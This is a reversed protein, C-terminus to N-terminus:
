VYQAYTYLTFVISHRPMYMTYYSLQDMRVYQRVYVCVCVRLVVLEWVCGKRSVRVLQCLDSRIGYITALNVADSSFSNDVTYTYKCVYHPLTHPAALSCHPTLMLLTIYISRHHLM